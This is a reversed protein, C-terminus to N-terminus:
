MGRTVLSRFPLIEISFLLSSTHPVRIYYVNHFLFRSSFRFSTLSRYSASYVADCVVHSVCTLTYCNYDLIYRAPLSFFVLLSLSNISLFNYCLLKCDTHPLTCRRHSRKDTRSALLRVCFILRTSVKSFIRRARHLLRPLSVMLPFLFQVCQTCM